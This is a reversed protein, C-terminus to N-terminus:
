CLRFYFSKLSMQKFILDMDCFIEINYKKHNKRQVYSSLKIALSVSTQNEKEIM